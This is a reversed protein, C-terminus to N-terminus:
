IAGAAGTAGAKGLGEAARRLYRVARWRACPGLFRALERGDTLQVSWGHRIPRIMMRLANM